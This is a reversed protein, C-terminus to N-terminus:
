VMEGACTKLTNWDLYQRPSSSIAHSAARIGWRLAVASSHGHLCATLFGANFSDGAGITDVVKIPHAAAQLLREGCWMRAGDPGCKVVCAADAPQQRNLTRAATYLDESGAMGCTEVENLLLIDCFPLWDAIQTRLSDSWGQPPWGTDVAIRYGRQRLTKLLAPYDALLTTCLFTGCMLVTDGSGALVPIQHLVDDQSLRTIHGQNSFFTRENDPHTVGFTLSTECSYTPWYPSSDPFLQALWPSFYDNGLNAVLRYPTELAALALACNGASGGPRLESHDLMAETGQQPWQQLTSMIVDVNINGVVYLTPKTNNKMM